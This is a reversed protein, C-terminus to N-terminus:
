INTHVTADNHEFTDSINENMVYFETIQRQKPSFDEYYIVNDSISERVEENVIFYKPHEIEIAEMTQIDKNAKGEIEDSAVDQLFKLAKFYSEPKGAKKIQAVITLLADDDVCSITHNPSAVATQNTNGPTIQVKENEQVNIRPVYPQISAPELSTPHPPYDVLSEPAPVQPQHCPPDDFRQGTGFFGTNVPGNNTHHTPFEPYNFTNGDEENFYSEQNQECSFSM